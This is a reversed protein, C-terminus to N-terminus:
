DSVLHARTATEFRVTDYLRGGSGPASWRVMRVDDAMLEGARDPNRPEAIRLYPQGAIMGDPVTLDLTVQSCDPGDYPGLDVHEVSASSGLLDAYWRMELQASETAKRVDVTLTVHDGPTVPVRHLPTAIVDFDSGGNRVLQLGRSGSCAAANTLRTYKGIGWLAPVPPDTDPSTDMKEFSGTGYLLDQGPTVERQGPTLWWGSPISAVTGATGTLPEAPPMASVLTSAGGIDLLMPGFLLGSAVRASSDALLGTTPVPAYDSIAFPDISTRVPTGNELDVRLLYSHLTSWLDQDFMLNGMTEAVPVGDTETIGGIVHPHGNVVVTAGADAAVKSLSRIKDDQTNQYEVGGHMMVVVVDAQAKARSVATALLGPECSAAGGQGPRVVYADQYQEGTITTCGIFAVRQGHAEVYAPRWAEELTMGAGFHVLGAADVSAITSRLGSALADYVHNNGLDVVDVGSAKLALATEPGSAFVLDKEQNFTHPRSDAFYPKDVLSTELNVVTLDADGLLPAIQRLPAEHDRADAGPTLWAPASASAEYFRRGLMADGGFRLTLSGADREVLGITPDQGPAVALVRSAYGPATVRLLTPAALEIRFGGQRDVTASQQTGGVLAVKGRRLPAGTAADVLTGQSPQLEQTLPAHAAAPEPRRATEAWLWLLFSTGVTLSVVLATIATGWGHESRV